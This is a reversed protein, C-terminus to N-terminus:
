LLYWPQAMACRGLFFFFQPLLDFGLFVFMTLWGNSQVTPPLLAEGVM